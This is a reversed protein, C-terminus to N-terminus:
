IKAHERHDPNLGRRTKDKILAEIGDKIDQLENISLHAYGNANECVCPTEWCHACDSLAM